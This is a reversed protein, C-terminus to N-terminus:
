LGPLFTTFADTPDVSRLAPGAPVPVPPSLGRPYSSLGSVGNGPGSDREMVGSSAARRGRPGVAGLGDLGSRDLTGM